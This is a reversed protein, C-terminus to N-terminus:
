SQLPQLRKSGNQLKLITLTEFAGFGLWFRFLRLSRGGETILIRMVRKLFLGWLGVKACTVLSGLDQNRRSFGVNELTNGQNGKLALIYDAEKDLIKQAIEKQCGM